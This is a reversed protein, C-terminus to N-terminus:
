GIMPNLKCTGRDHSNTSSAGPTASIATSGALGPNNLGFTTTVTSGTSGPM